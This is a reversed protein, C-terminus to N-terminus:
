LPWLWSVSFSAEPDALAQEMVGGGVPRDQFQHHEKGQSRGAGKGGVLKEDRDRVAVRGLLGRHPRQSLVPPLFEYGCPGYGLPFHIQVLNWQQKAKSLKHPLVQGQGPATLGKATSAM